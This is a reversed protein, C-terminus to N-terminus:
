GPRRRSQAQPPEAKDDGEGELTRFLSDYPDEDEDTDGSGDEPEQGEEPQEQQGPQAAAEAKQQEAAQAAQLAMTYVQDLLIDGGPLAEEDDRIRLENPTTKVRVLKADLDAREAESLSNLGAFHLEFDPAHEWLVHLNLKDVMVTVLRELGRERSVRLRAENNTEFLAKQGAGGYKPLGVETADVGFHLLALWMLFENFMSWEMDRNSQSMPVWQVDGKEHPVNLIPMKWANQVGAVTQAWYRKFAKLAKPPVAGIIKLIGKTISGQKFYNMNYDLSDILGTVCVFLDDLEPYGYGNAHIDTRPRRVGYALKSADWKMWAKGNIWQVYDITGNESLADGPEPRRITKVDLARFAAPKGRRDPIIEIPLGDHIISDRGTKALFTAFNDRRFRELPNKPDINGCTGFFRTWKEIEATEAKTPKRKAERLRIVRGIEYPTRQPQAWKCFQNVRLTIIPAIQPAAAMIERTDYALGRGNSIDNLSKDVLDLPDHDLGEGTGIPTGPLAKRLPEYRDGRVDDLLEFLSM